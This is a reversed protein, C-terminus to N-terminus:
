QRNKMMGYETKNQGEIKYPGVKPRQCNSDVVSRNYVFAMVWKGSKGEEDKQNVNKQYLRKKVNKERM